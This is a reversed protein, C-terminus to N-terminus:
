EVLISVFFLTIDLLLVHKHPVTIDDSVIAEGRILLARFQCHFAQLLCDSNLTTNVVGPWVNALTKKWQPISELRCKSFTIRQITIKGPKYSPEVTKLIHTRYWEEQYSNM